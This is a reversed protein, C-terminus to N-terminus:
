GEYEIEFQLDASGSILDSVIINTQNAASVTNRFQVATVNSGIFAESQHGSLTISRPEFTGFTLTNGSSIYPLGQVFIQNGATLGTTDVNSLNGQVAIRNGRRQFTQFNAAGSHSGINGGSAADAPIPSWNGEEYWDFVNGDNVGFNGVELGGNMQLKAGSGSDAQDILLTSNIRQIASFVNAAGLRAFVNNLATLVDSALATDPDGSPSVSGAALIAYIAGYIDDPWENKLPTGNKAGVPSENAFGGGPYDASPPVHNLYVDELRITM